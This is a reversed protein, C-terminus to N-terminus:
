RRAVRYNHAVVVAQLSTVGISLVLAATANKKRLREIFYIVGVTSAAKVSILAAPSSAISRLLPNGEVGRNDLARLTSHVDLAQLVGYGAYVVIRSVGDSRTPLATTADAAFTSVEPVLSLQQSTALSIAALSSIEPLPNEASSEQAHAPATLLM